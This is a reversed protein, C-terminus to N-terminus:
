QIREIDDEQNVNDYEVTKFLVDKLHTIVREAHAEDECFFVFSEQTAWRTMKVDYTKSGDTLTTVIRNLVIM